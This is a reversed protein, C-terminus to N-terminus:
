VQKFEPSRKERFAKIAEDHDHTRGSVAEYAMGIDMISHAM